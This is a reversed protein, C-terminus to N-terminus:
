HTFIRYLAMGLAPLVVTCTIAVRRNKELGLWEWSYSLFSPAKRLMRLTLVFLWVGLAFCFGYFIANWM